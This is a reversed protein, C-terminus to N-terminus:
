IFITALCNLSCIATGVFRLTNLKFVSIQQRDRKLDFMCRLCYNQCCQLKNTLETTIYHIFINCYNFNQSNLVRM